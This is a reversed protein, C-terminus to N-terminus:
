QVQNENSVINNSSSKKAPKLHQKENNMGAM